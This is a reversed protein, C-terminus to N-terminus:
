TPLSGVVSAMAFRSDVARFGADVPRNFIRVLVGCDPPKSFTPWYSGFVPSVPHLATLLYLRCVGCLSADAAPLQAPDQTDALRDVLASLADLARFLLQGLAPTYVVSGDRLAGMVDELKHATDTVPLLKLMRSSGKITHASRFIANIHEVDARGTELATLGEALRNLHDRAEEIFRNVFKKIDIAM